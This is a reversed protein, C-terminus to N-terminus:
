RKQYEMVMAILTYTQKIMDMSDDFKWMDYVM